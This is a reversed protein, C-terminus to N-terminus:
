IEIYKCKRVLLVRVLGECEEKYWTCRNMYIYKRVICLLDAFIKYWAYRPMVMEQMNYVHIVLDVFNREIYLDAIMYWTCRPMYM